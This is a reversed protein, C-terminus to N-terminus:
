VLSRENGRSSPMPRSSPPLPVRSPFFSGLYSSNATKKRNNSVFSVYVEMHETLLEVPLPLFDTCERRKAGALEYIGQKLEPFYALMMVEDQYYSWNKDAPCEWRFQLGDAKLEIGPESTGELSGKAVLAKAYDITVDSNVGTVANIKNYGVALNYPTKGKNFDQKYATFGVNIFEVLPKVFAVAAAMEARNHLQALSPQKTIKGKERVVQKGDMVYYVMNGLKGYLFGNPGIRAM